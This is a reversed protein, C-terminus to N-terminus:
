EILRLVYVAGQDLVSWLTEIAKKEDKILIAEYIQQYWNFNQIAADYNRYFFRIMRSAVDEFNRQILRFVANGNACILVRHFTADLEVLIEIDKIPNNLWEKQKNICKELESLDPNDSALIMKLSETEVFKRFVLTDKLLRLKMSQNNSDLVDNLIDITGTSLYDNVVVFHRPTVQLYGQASLSSVASNVVSRSVQYKLALERLPLLKEGIKLQGNIIDIKIKKVILSTM